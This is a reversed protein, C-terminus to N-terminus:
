FTARPIVNLTLYSDLLYTSSSVAEVGILAVYGAMYSGSSIAFKEELWWVFWYNSLVRAALCFLLSGLLLSVFIPGGASQWYWSYISLGVSGTAREEDEVLNSPDSETEKGRGSSGTVAVRDTDIEESKLGRPRSDTSIAQGNDVSGSEQTLFSSSDPPESLQITDNNIAIVYDAFPLYEDHHTVLIVTHPLKRICHHFLNRGVNADVAALPDDLLMIDAQSYVARALAIRARQGGSLNTGIEGVTTLDGQPLRSFDDELCAARITELYRNEEYSTLFTINDRITASYTWPDQTYLAKTGRIRVSAPNLSPLGGAIASLLTSKGSGVPGVIITLKNKPVSLTLPGLTFTESNGQADSLIDNEESDSAEEPSDANENDNTKSAHKFCAGHLEIASGDAPEHSSCIQNEEAMFYELLRKFSPYAHFQRAIAISLVFAPEYTMNFLALAPFIVDSTLRHGQWWYVTIAVAATLGPIMQTVAASLCFQLRLMLSLDKMQSLRVGDVRQLFYRQLGIVKIAKVSYLFERLVKIRSDNKSTYRSVADASVVEARSQILFLMLM